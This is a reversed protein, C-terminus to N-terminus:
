AARLSGVAFRVLHRLTQETDESAMAPTFMGATWHGPQLYDVAGLLLRMRMLLTAKDLHPLLPLMVACCAEVTARVQAIVGQHLPGALLPMLAIMLTGSTPLQAHRTSLWMPRALAEIALRIRDEPDTSTGASRLLDLRLQHMPEVNDVALQELLGNLGGFHYSVLSVNCKAEGTVARVSMAGGGHRVLLGEAAQLLRIAAVELHTGATRGADPLSKPHISVRASLLACLRVM